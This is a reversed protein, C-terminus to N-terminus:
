CDFACKMAYISYASNMHQLPTFLTFFVGRKGGRLPNLVEIFILVMWFSFPSLGYTTMDYEM